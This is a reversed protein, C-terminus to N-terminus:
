PNAPSAVAGAPRHPSRSWRFPGDPGCASRWCAEPGASPGAKVDDDKQGIQMGEEILLASQFLHALGCVVVPVAEHGQPQVRLPRLEDVACVVLELRLIHQLNQLYGAVGREVSGLAAHILDASASLVGHDGLHDVRKICAISMASRCISRATPPMSWRLIWMSARSSSGRRPRGAGTHM